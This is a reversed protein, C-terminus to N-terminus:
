DMVPVWLYWFCLVMFRQLSFSIVAGSLCVHVLSPQHLVLSYLHAWPKCCKELGKKEIVLHKTTGSYYMCSSISWFDLLWSLQYTVLLTLKLVLGNCVVWFTSTYYGM